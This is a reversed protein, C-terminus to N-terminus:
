STIRLKVNFTIINLSLPKLFTLSYKCAIVVQSFPYFSMIINIPHMNENFDNFSGM